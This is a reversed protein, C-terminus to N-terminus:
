QVLVHSMASKKENERAYTDEIDHFILKLAYPFINLKIKIELVTCLNM